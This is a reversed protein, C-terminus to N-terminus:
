FKYYIRLDLNAMERKKNSEDKIFEYWSFIKLELKDILNIIIDFTPGVSSYQSILKKMKSNVFSFTQLSFFKVGLNFEVISYKYFFSQQIFKEQLHRQPSESFNQWNFNGQESIKLYGNFNVGFNKNLIIKSSDRFGFQRFSYSKYNPNLEEYDFVTYNASVEATNKTFLFSNSFSGGSLFKITRKINNNSSRQSFIYVMKNISTEFNIFANFFKNFNHLYNINGISLLEDRDDFNLNSPTDYQLKRHFLSFSIINNKITYSGTLSINALQSSNNKQEELIKREEFVINSIGEYKNPQHKEDRETYSFRFALDLDRKKYEVLSFFELRLENIKTDYNINPINNLSIYRTKRDIDRFSIRGILDFTFPSDNQILKLREQINYNTEIRSQINNSIGFEDSTLKDATFYFDRRQQLYNTSITNSFNENINNSLDFNILRLINKKPSIDENKYKIISNIEFEGLNFDDINTELGYVYGNDNENLQNNQEFGLFPIINIKSFPSYDLFLITTLVSAKNLGVNRDDNYINNGIYFGLNFQEDFQYNTQANLLHEDKINKLNTKITTSNFQENIGFFIKNFTFSNKFNLSYFNTKLQKNFSNSFLKESYLKRSFSLSDKSQQAITITSLIFLLFCFKKM